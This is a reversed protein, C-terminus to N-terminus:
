RPRRWARCPSGAPGRCGPATPCCPGAPRRWSRASTRRGRSIGRTRPDLGSPAVRTDEFGPTTEESGPATGGSETGGGPGPPVAAARPTQNGAGPTPRTPRGRSIRTVRSPRSRSVGAGRRRCVGPGGPVGPGDPEGVRGGLGDGGPASSGAGATSGDSVSAAGQGPVHAVVSMVVSMVVALSGSGSGTRGRVPAPVSRLLRVCWRPPPSQEVRPDASAASRHRRRLEASPVPVPVSTPVSTPM